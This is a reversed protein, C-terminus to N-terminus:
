GVRQVATRLLERVAEAQIENSAEFEVHRARRGKGAMPLVECDAQAVNHVYLLCRTGSPQIGCFVNGGEAVAYLAIGVKRGGYIGECATPAVEYVLGRLRTAVARIANPYPDLLSAFTPTVARAPSQARAAAPKKGSAKCTKSKSRPPM